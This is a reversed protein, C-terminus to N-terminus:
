WRRTKSLPNGADLVQLFLQAHCLNLARDEQAFGHLRSRSETSGGGGIGTVRIQIVAASYRVEPRTFDKRNRVDDYNFFLAELGTDLESETYVM